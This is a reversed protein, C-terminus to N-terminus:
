LVCLCWSVCLVCWPCVLFYLVSVSLVCISSGCLPMCYDISRENANSMIIIPGDHIMAMM